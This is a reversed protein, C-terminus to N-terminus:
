LPLSATASRAIMEGRVLAGLLALQHHSVRYRQQSQQRNRQDKEGGRDKKEAGKGVQAIAQRLAPQRAALGSQAIAMRCVSDFIQARGQGVRGSFSVDLDIQGLGEGRRAAGLLRCGVEGGKPLSLRAAANDVKLEGPQSRPLAIFAFGEFAIAGRDIAVPFSISGDAATLNAHFENIVEYFPLSERLRPSLKDDSRSICGVVRGDLELDGSQHLFGAVRVIRTLDVFRDQLVRWVVQLRELARRSRGKRQAIVRLCAVVHVLGQRIRSFGAFRRLRTLVEM